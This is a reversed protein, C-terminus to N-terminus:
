PKMLKAVRTDLDAVTQKGFAVGTIRGQSNIFYTTPLAEILYRTAIKAVPDVAVPYRADAKELLRIAGKTNSDNTDVGVVNVRGAESRAFDAISALEEQCDSCWSAFFNLVVPAGIFDSLEIESGGGLRALSFGPAAAGIHLTPPPTDAFTGPTSRSNGSTAVVVVFAILGFTAVVAVAAFIWDSRRNGRSMVRQLLGPVRRTVNSEPV